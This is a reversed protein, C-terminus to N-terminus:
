SAHAAPVATKGGNLRLRAKIPLHDSAIRSLPTLHVTAECLESQTCAMMRDLAVLPFRAPFSPVAVDASFHGKLSELSSRSGTRWENLDGMLLTPRNDLAQLRNLLARTQRARSGRLLGFHAAAVRLPQGNILLDTILSGRPELGPLDLHHVAQILANRVLILNGHFGHAEGVTEVPVPVLGLDRRLADLDLLGKRAGFRMDAEQLALIDADIEAIVAATRAPDRRGDAGVAKHINYSAVTLDNPLLM